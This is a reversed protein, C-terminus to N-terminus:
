ASPRRCPMQTPLTSSDLPAMDRYHDFRRTRGPLQSKAFEEQHLWQLWLNPCLGFVLRGGVHQRGNGVLAPDRVLVLVSAKGTKQNLTLRGNVQPIALARIEASETEELGQAALPGGAPPSLLSSVTM